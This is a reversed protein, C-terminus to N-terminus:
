AEKRCDRCVIFKDPEGFCAACLAGKCTDCFFAEKGSVEKGCAQCSKGGKKKAAEAKGGKPSEPQIDKQGGGEEKAEDDESEPDESKKLPQAGMSGVFAKPLTVEWSKTQEFKTAIDAIRTHLHKYQDPDNECAVVSIGAALCGVVEGGAGAGLVLAKDFPTTFLSCLLRAIWAPKEYPNVPKKDDGM